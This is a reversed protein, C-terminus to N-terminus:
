RKDYVINLLISYLKKLVEKPQRLRFIYRKIDLYVEHYLLLSPLFHFYKQVRKNVCQLKIFYWDNSLKNENVKTDDYVEHLTQFWKEEISERSFKETIYAISSDSNFSSESLMAIISDALKNDSEYLIGNHPYVTDLLGPSKFSVIRLGAIQMEIATYGFTEWFHTNVIGVRCKNMIDWKEAGLIGLFHVSPDITNDDILIPRVCEYEYYDSSIGFKSSKNDRDYLHGSGIIFLNADPYSQKVIKWAKTLLHVGKIYNIAGVYVVNNGRNMFPCLAKELSRFNCLNYIYDSKKFVPHDYLTDLQHKGVCVIRKVMDDKELINLFKYPMFVHAWVIIKVHVSHLINLVQKNFSQETTRNVVLIDINNQIIAHPLNNATKVQVVKITKPLQEASEAFLCCDVDRSNLIHALQLMAFHTGGIGPNGNEIHSCDVNRFAFNRFYLAVRM